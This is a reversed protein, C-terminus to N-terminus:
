VLQTAKGWRTGMVSLLVQRITNSNTNLLNIYTFHKSSHRTYPLHKIFISHMVYPAFIDIREIIKDFMNLKNFCIYIIWRHGLPLCYKHICKPKGSICPKKQGSWYILKRGLPVVDDKEWNPSEVVTSDLLFIIHTMYIIQFRRTAM